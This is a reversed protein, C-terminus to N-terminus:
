KRYKCKFEKDYNKRGKSEYDYSFQRIEIKLQLLLHITFSQKLRFGCNIKGQMEFIFCCIEFMM